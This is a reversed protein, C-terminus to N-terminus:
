KVAFKTSTIFTFLQTAPYNPFNASSLNKKKKEMLKREREGMDIGKKLWRLKQREWGHMEGKKKEDWNRECERMGGKEKEKKKKKM